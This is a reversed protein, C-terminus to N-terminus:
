EYCDIIEELQDACEEVATNLNESFFVGGPNERWEAVLEELDEKLEDSM